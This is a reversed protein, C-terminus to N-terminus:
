KEPAGADIWDALDAVQADTLQGPHGGVSQRTYVLSNQPNGPVIGPGSNGGALTKDYSTLNLGGLAGHCAGCSDSMTAAWVADWTADANGGAGASGVTEPAGDEIWDLLTALDADTFQGPHGGARQLTYVVSADSDGPVIGPGSNGGALTKDYSTLNLGGLAGHCAGCSDAFLEEMTNNWAVAVTAPRTTTTTEPAETTIVLPVTANPSPVFVQVDEAPEITAIATEEITVFLFIGALLLAAVGAFIPLFRRMRRQVEAPDPPGPLLGSEIEALELAHEEAMQERSIYGTFITTNFSRLHVQYFHWVLIALVALLAEGGHAAKAAPIVQGPLYRATAIPNWLMFGTVTMVVTGWVIAWYELKEEWTFHGQPPHERRLGLNYALGQFVAKVDGPGPLMTRSSRKVFVKVGVTYVHYVVALLLITAFIRHIIRVTEIGGMAKIAIESFGAQPWKQVLGTLALVTFTVVQMWHEIRDSVTFRLYREQIQEVREQEDLM